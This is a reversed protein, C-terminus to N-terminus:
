TSTGVILIDYTVSTGAGSNAIQFQDATSATVAWGAGTANTFVVMEGPPVGVKHTASSFPGNFTNSAAGGIQVNNTNGAAARVIILKVHLLSVSAGFRDTLAANLDLIDTGSAAITRTDEFVTDAQGTSTGALLQYLSQITFSESLSGLKGAGVNSGTVSLQLTLNPSSM